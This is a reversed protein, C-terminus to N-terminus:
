EGRLTKLEEDLRHLFSDEGDDGSLFWDIRHAYIYAKKLLEVGERMAKEVDPRFVENYVEDAYWQHESLEGQTNLVHEITEYIDRIDHQKYNYRGGSM